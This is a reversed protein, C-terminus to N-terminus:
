REPVRKRVMLLRWVLKVLEEILERLVQVKGLLTNEIQEQSIRMSANFM